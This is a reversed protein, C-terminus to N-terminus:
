HSLIGTTCPQPIIHHLRQAEKSRWLLHVATHTRGNVTERDIDKRRFTPFTRRRVIPLIIEVVIFAVPLIDGPEGTYRTQNYLFRHRKLEQIIRLRQTQKLPLYIKVHLSCRFEVFRQLEIEGLPRLPCICCFLLFRGELPQPSPYSVAHRCSCRRVIDISKHRRLEFALQPLVDILVKQQAPPEKRIKKCIHILACFIHNPHSPIFQEPKEEIVVAIRLLAITVVGHQCVKIVHRSLRPISFFRFISELSVIRPQPAQHQSIQFVIDNLHGPFHAGKQRFLPDILYKISFLLSVPTGTNVIFAAFQLIDFWLYLTHHHLPLQHLVRVDIRQLAVFLSKTVPKDFISERQEIRFVLRSIEERVIDVHIHTALSICRGIRDYYCCAVQIIKTITRVVRRM